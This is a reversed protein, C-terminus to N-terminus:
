YVGGNTINGNPAQANAYGLYLNGGSLAAHGALFGTPGSGSAITVQSWTVGGNTSKYLNTGSSTSNRGLYITQSAGGSFGPSDFLVFTTRITTPLGSSGGSIRTFSHGADTSKWLGADNSGLFVINSNNPDVAIQEGNGRGNSNGGVYFSLNTQFWTT